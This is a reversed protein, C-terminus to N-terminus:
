KLTIPKGVVIQNDVVHVSATTGSIRSSVVNLHGDVQADDTSEYGESYLAWGAAVAIVLLVALSAIVIRTTKKENRTTPLVELKAVQPM